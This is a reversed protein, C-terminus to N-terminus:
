AQAKRSKCHIAFGLEVVLKLGNVLARVIDDSGVCLVVCLKFGAEFSVVCAPVVLEGGSTKGDDLGFAEDLPTDLVPQSPIHLNCSRTALQEACM